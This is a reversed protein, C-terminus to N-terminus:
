MKNTSSQVKKDGNLRVIIAALLIAALLLIGVYIIVGSLGSEATNLFGYPYWDTFTGRILTYVLYGILLVFWSGAERFKIKRSPFYIWDFLMVLPSFYHMVLNTWGLFEDNKGGLLVTFGLGTILIFLTAVARLNDVYYKGPNIVSSLLATIVLINSIVTFYSLYNLVPQRFTLMQVVVAAAITVSVLIRFAKM